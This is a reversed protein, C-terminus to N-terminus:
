EVQGLPSLRSFIQEKLFEYHSDSYSKRIKELFEDKIYEFSGLDTSKGIISINQNGIYDPGFFVYIGDIEHFEYIKDLHSKWNIQMFENEHIMKKGIIVVNSGYGTPLGPYYYKIISEADDVYTFGYYPNLIKTIELILQNIKPMVPLERYEFSSLCVQLVFFGSKEFFQQRQDLSISVSDFELDSKKSISFDIVGDDIPNVIFSSLFKKISGPLLFSNELIESKEICRSGIRNGANNSDEPREIDSKIYAQRIIIESSTKESFEFINEFCKQGQELPILYGIFHTSSM